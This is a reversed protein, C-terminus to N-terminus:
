EKVGVSYKGLVVGYCKKLGMPQIPKRGQAYMYNGDYGGGKLGNKNKKM